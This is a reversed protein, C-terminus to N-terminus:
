SGKATGTSLFRGVATFRLLVMNDGPLLGIDGGTARFVIQGRM